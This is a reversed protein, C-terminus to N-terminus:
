TKSQTLGLKRMTRRLQTRHVGLSRAAESINGSAAGLAARVDDVSPAEEDRSAIIREGAGTRLHEVRVARQGDDLAVEAAHKAERWLDRVNGPWPRLMCAEILKSHLTLAGDVEAVAEALLWPIDEPRERLAPLVVERDGLRYFLDERFLGRAVDQRLDRHTAFCFRVDVKRPRTGGLPVIEHTELVRLLKAQVGLDLDGIEDLFLTGGDAAQIVGGSDSVAGSYAGRKTGFLLREALGEPITACNFPVFPGGAVESYRRAAIEKGTGTEGRIMLTDRARAAREVQALASGFLAGVVIRGEKKVTKGAHRSVDNALLMVTGGTRVVCPATVLKEDTVRAGGVFTGNRSGLDRVVFGDAEARIEAHHGSLRDDGLLAGITDDHGVALRREATFVLFRPTGSFAVIAGHSRGAKGKATHTTDGRTDRAMADTSQIRNAPRHSERGGKEDHEHRKCRQRLRVCVVLRSPKERFCADGHITTLPRVGLDLELRAVRLQRALANREVESDAELVHPLQGACAREIQVDRFGFPARAVLRACFYGVVVGHRDHGV